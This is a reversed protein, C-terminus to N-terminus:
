SAGNASCPCSWTRTATRVPVLAFFQVIFGIMDRRLEARKGNGLRTVDQGKIRVMGSDPHDLCGM